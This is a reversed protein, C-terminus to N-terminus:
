GPVGQGGVSKEAGPSSGRTRRGGLLVRHLVILLVMVVVLAVGQEEARHLTRDRSM